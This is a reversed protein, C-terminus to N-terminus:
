PTSTSDRHNRPIHYGLGRVNKVGRSKLAPIIHKTLTSQDMDIAPTLKGLAKIIQPGKIAGDLPVNQILKLVATQKPTLPKLPEEEEVPHRTRGFRQEFRDIMVAVTAADFRPPCFTPHEIGTQLRSLAGLSSVRVGEGLDIARMDPFLPNSAGAPCSDHLTVLYYWEATDARALDGQARLLGIQAAGCTTPDTETPYSEGSSIGRISTPSYPDKLWEVFEKPHPHEKRWKKRARDSEALQRKIAPLVEREIRSRVQPDSAFKALRAAQRSLADIEESMTEAELTRLLARLRQLQSAEIATEPEGNCFMFTISSLCDNLTGFRPSHRSIVRVVGNGSSAIESPVSLFWRAASAASCIKSWREALGPLKGAKPDRCLYRGQSNRDLSDVAMIFGRLEAVIMALWEATTASPDFCVSDDVMPGFKDTRALM